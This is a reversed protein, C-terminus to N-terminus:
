TQQAAQVATGGVQVVLYGITAGLLGVSGALLWVGLITPIAAVALFGRRDLRSRYRDSLWGAVPQLGAAVALGVFSVLGLQTADGGVRLPLVLVTVGDFLFALPIWLVSVGVLLRARAAM